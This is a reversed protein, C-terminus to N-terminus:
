PAAETLGFRGAQIERTVAQTTTFPLVRYQVADPVQWRGRTISIEDAVIEYTAQPDLGTNKIRIVRNNPDVSWDLVMGALHPPDGYLTIWSQLYDSFQAGTMEFQVVADHGLSRTIETYYLPGSPVPDDWVGYPRVFAIDAGSQRQMAEACLDCWLVQNNEPVQCLKRPTQLRWEADFHLASPLLQRNEGALILMDAKLDTLRSPAIAPVSGPAASGAVVVYRAPNIPNPYAFVVSAGLGEVHVSAIQLGNADFRVPLRDALRSTVSNAGPGGLLILNCDQIDEDSIESDAKVPWFTERDYVYSWRQTGEKLPRGKSVEEALQRYANEVESGAETGYVIVSKHFLWDGIPGGIESNKVIEAEVPELELRLNQAYPITQARGNLVIQVPKGAAVQGGALDLALAGVNDTEVEITTGNVVRVDVRAEDAYNILRQITVWYARNYRPRTCIFEVHEPYRPARENLVREVYRRDRYAPFTGHGGVRLETCVARGGIGALAGTMVQSNAVCTNPDHRGHYSHMLVYRVNPLQGTYAYGWPGSPMSAIFRHPMQIPYHWASTGGTSLGRMSVRAPDMGFHEQLQDYVELFDVDQVGGRGLNHHREELGVGILPWEALPKYGYEHLGILGYYFHASTGGHHAFMTPWQKAKDFGKPLNLEYPQLSDDLKSRHACLFKGSKGAFYDVDAELAALMEDLQVVWEVPWWARKNRAGRSMAKFEDAGHRKIMYLLMEACERQFPYQLQKGSVQALQQEFAGIMTDYETIFNGALNIPSSRFHQSRGQISALGEVWYIGCPLGDAAISFAVTAAGQGGVRVTQAETRAMARGVVRTSRLRFQVEAAAEPSSAALAFHGAVADEPGVTPTSVYCDFSAAPLDVFRELAPETQVPMVLADVLETGRRLEFRVAGWGPAPAELALPIPVGIEAPLLEHVAPAQPRAGSGDIVEAAVETPKPGDGRKAVTVSAIFTGHHPPVPMAPATLCYAPAPTAESVFRIRGPIWDTGWRAIGGPGPVQLELDLDWVEGTAPPDARLGAIPIAFEGRLRGESAETEGQPQPLNELQQQRKRINCTICSTAKLAASGDGQLTVESANIHEPRPDLKLRLRWGSAEGVALGAGPPGAEFLVYVNADDHLLRVEAPLESNTNCGARPNVWAVLPRVRQWAAEEAVGDLLPAETVRLCEVCPSIDEIVQPSPYYTIYEAPRAATVTAVLAILVGLRSTLKAIWQM